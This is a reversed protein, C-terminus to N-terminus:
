IVELCSEHNESDKQETRFVSRIRTGKPENNDNIIVCANDDSRVYVWKLYFLVCRSGKSSNKRSIGNLTSKLPVFVIDGVSAYHEKFWWSRSAFFSKQELTIL